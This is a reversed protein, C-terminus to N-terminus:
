RFPKIAFSSKQVSDIESESFFAKESFVFKVGRPGGGGVEFHCFSRGRGFKTYTMEHYGQNFGKPHGVQFFLNKGFVPPHGVRRLIAFVEGPM